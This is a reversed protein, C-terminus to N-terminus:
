KNLPKERVWINVAYKKGRTVPLGAHYAAKIVKGKSDLNNFILARGKKPMVLFDVNPFYTFGGEFDDNLYVLLTYKRQGGEEITRRGRESAHDFTDYHNRYEQGPGYSVCQFFEFHNEPVKILESARKRIGLLVPDHPFVHLEASYSTRGDGVINEEGFLTSRKFEPEAIKLIHDCEAESLFNDKVLFNNKLEPNNYRKEEYEKEKIEFDSEGNGESGALCLAYKEAKQLFNDTPEIVWGKRTHIYEVSGDKAEHLIVFQGLKVGGQNEHIFLITAPPLDSLTIKEDQFNFVGAKLGWKDLIEILDEFGLNPFNKHEKVDKEITPRSIKFDIYFLLNKLLAVSSDSTNRQPQWFKNMFTFTPFGFSFLFPSM